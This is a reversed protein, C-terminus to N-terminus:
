MLHRDVILIRWSVFVDKFHFLSIKNYIKYYNIDMNNNNSVIRSLILIFKVEFQKTLQIKINKNIMTM